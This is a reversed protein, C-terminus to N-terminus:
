QWIIKWYTQIAIALYAVGEVPCIPLHRHKSFFLFESKVIDPFFLLINEYVMFFYFITCLTVCEIGLM